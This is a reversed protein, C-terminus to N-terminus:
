ESVEGCFVEIANLGSKSLFREAVSPVEGSRSDLEIRDVRHMPFFVLAPDALEGSKLQHAFDDLSELTIGRLTVGSVSLSMLAGWFKERPSNLSLVVLSGRDFAPHQSMLESGMYPNYKSGALPPRQLVSAPNRHPLYPLGSHVRVM